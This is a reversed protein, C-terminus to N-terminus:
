EINTTDLMMVEGDMYFLKNVDTDVPFRLTLQAEDEGVEVLGSAETTEPNLSKLHFIKTKNLIGELQERTVVKAINSYPHVDIIYLEDSDEDDIEIECVPLNTFVYESKIIKIANFEAVKVDKKIKFNKLIM